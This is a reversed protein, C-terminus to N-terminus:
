RRGFYENYHPASEYDVAEIRHRTAWIHPASRKLYCVYSFSEPVGAFNDDDIEIWGNTATAVSFLELSSCGNFVCAGISQM